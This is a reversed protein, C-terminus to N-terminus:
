IKEIVLPRDFEFNSFDFRKNVDKSTDKYINETKTCATFIGTDMYGLRSKEKYKLKIYDYCFEYMALIISLGLYVPSIKKVKAKTKM